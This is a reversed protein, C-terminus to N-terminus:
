DAFQLMVKEALQSDEFQLANGMGVFFMEKIPKHRELVKDVLDKWRVGTIAIPISRSAHTLKKRVQAVANFVHKVVDRYDSSIDFATLTGM